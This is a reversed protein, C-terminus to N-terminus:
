LNPSPMSIWLFWAGCIWFRPRIAEQLLKTGDSVFLGSNERDKRSSLLRRVQQILPNKRSSIYETQTKM